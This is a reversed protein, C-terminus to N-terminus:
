LTNCQLHHAATTVLTIFWWSTVPPPQHYVQTHSPPAISFFNCLAEVIGHPSLFTSIPLPPPSAPSSWFAKAGSFQYLSATILSCAQLHGAWFVLTDVGWMVIILSQLKSDHMVCESIICSIDTAEVDM